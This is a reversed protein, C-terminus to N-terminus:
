AIFVLGTISRSKIAETPSKGHNTVSCIGQSGEVLTIQQSLPSVVARSSSSVMILSLFMAM